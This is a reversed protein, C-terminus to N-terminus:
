PMQLRIPLKRILCVQNGRSGKQKETQRLLDGKEEIEGAARIKFNDIVGFSKIKWIFPSRDVSINYCM